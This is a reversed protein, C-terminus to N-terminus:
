SFRFRYIALGGDLDGTWDFEWVSSNTTCARVDDHETGRRDPRCRRSRWRQQTCHRRWRAQGFRAEVRIRLDVALKGHPRQVGLEDVGQTYEVQAQANTAVCTDAETPDVGNQTYCIQASATDVTMTVTKNVSYTGAAVNFVPTAVRWDYAVSSIPTPTSRPASTGDGLQSSTNAGWTTVVGTSDVSISHSWEAAVDSVASLATIQVPSKQDTINAGLGLQGGTNEGWGWVSGDILRAFAHDLGSVAQVVNTLSGVSVVVWRDTSTTDALQGAGNEGAGKVTGDSLIILSHAEGGAIKAATSIGQMQVPSSTAGTSTTNNGLQGSGNAGWAWATGDSKVALSHSRGAGIAVAGTLVLTPSTANTTTGNGIQGVNNRGWAYVDGNSTLALSHFEGAAIATVNSLSLLVPTERDTTTNDGVQGYVNDGWVYLTGSSTLAMSHVGGAAVAQINSLGTVQQPSKRTTTTNDGLQGNNNLGFAWLSGDSKVVLTFAGGGAVGSQARAVSAGAIVTALLLVTTRIALRTVGTRMLAARIM